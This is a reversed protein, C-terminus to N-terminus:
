YYKNDIFSRLHINKFGPPKKPPISATNIGSWDEIPNSWFGYYCDMYGPWKKEPLTNYSKIEWWDAIFSGVIHGRYCSPNVKFLELGIDASIYKKTNIFIGTLFNFLHQDSINKNKLIFKQLDKDVTNDKAWQKCKNGFEKSTM